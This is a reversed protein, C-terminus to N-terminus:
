SIKWGDDRNSNDPRREIEIAERFKRNFHHDVKALIKAEDVCIHHKTKDLHEALASSCVQNHKIDAAHEEIRINVSRGTEGM